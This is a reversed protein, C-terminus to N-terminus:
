QKYAFDVDIFNITFWICGYENTADYYCVTFESNETTKCKLIKIDNSLFINEIIEYKITIKKPFSTSLIVYNDTIEICFSSDVSKESKKISLTDYFTTHLEKPKVIIKEQSFSYSFFLVTVLSILFTKM